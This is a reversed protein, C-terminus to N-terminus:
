AQLAHADPTQPGEPPTLQLGPVRQSMWGGRRVQSPSRCREECGRRGLRGVRAWAAKIQQHPLRPVDLLVLWRGKDGYGVQLRVPLPGDAGGLTAVSSPRPPPPVACPCLRGKGPGSCARSRQWCLQAPAAPLWPGEASAASAGLPLHEGAGPLPQSLASRATGLVPTSQQRGPGARIGCCPVPSWTSLWDWRCLGSLASPRKESGLFPRPQAPLALIQGPGAGWPSSGPRGVGM